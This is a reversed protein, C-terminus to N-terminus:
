IWAAWLLLRGAKGHIQLICVVSAYQRFDPETLRFFRRVQDHYRDRLPQPDAYKAVPAEDTAQVSHCSFKAVDRDLGVTRAATTATVATPFNVRRVPCRQ